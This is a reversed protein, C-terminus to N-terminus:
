NHKVIKVRLWDLAAQRDALRGELQLDYVQELLVGMSPGPAAGLELADQGTVWGPEAPIVGDLLGKEGDLGASLRALEQLIAGTSVALMRRKRALTANPLLIFGRLVELGARIDANSFKLRRLISEAEAAVPLLMAWLRGHVTSSREVILKARAWEEAREFSARALEPLIVALLGSAELAHLGKVPARSKLLKLLEDHVREPSVKAIQPALLKVAKFTAPEIEFGLQA